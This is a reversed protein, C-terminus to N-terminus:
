NAESAREPQPPRAELLQQVAKALAALTLQREAPQREMSDFVGLIAERIAESLSAVLPQQAEAIAIVRELEPYHPRTISLHMLSQQGGGAQSRQIALAEVARFRPILRSLKAQLSEFDTDNWRSPPKNALYTSVSVLWEEQKLTADAARMLFAKLEPEGALDLLRRARSSLLHQADGGGLEFADSILNRIDELISPYANQLEGLAGRLTAFFREVEEEM